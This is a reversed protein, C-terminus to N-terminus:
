LVMRHHPSELFYINSSYSSNRKFGINWFFWPAFIQLYMRCIHRVLVPHENFLTNKGLETCGMGTLSRLTSGVTVTIPWKRFLWYCGLQRPLPQLTKFTRPVCYKFFVRYTLAVSEFGYILFTYSIKWSKTLSRKLFHDRSSFFRLYIHILLM